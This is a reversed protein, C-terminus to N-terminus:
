FEPEEPTDITDILNVGPLKFGQSQPTKGKCREILGANVAADVYKSVTHWSKGFAEAAIAGSGWYGGARELAAAIDPPNLSAAAPETPSWHEWWGTTHEWRISFDATAVGRRLFHVDLRRRAEQRTLGAKQWDLEKKYHPLLTVRTSAWDALRSAGRWMDEPEAGNTLNGGKGTIHHIILVAVGTRHALDRLKDLAQEAQDNDNEKGGYYVAWPDVVFLKFGHELITEEIRPDLLADFWEDIDSQGTDRDIHTTKRHMIRLRWREFTEAVHEPPQKGGTLHCWRLYANHEDIEGQNILTRAQTRVPLRGLFMGHGDSLLAGLNYSLWSKGIARPAALAAIEGAELFGEVLVEPAPPPDAIQDTVWRLALTRPAPDPAGAPTLDPDDPDYNDVTDPTVWSFADPKRPQYPEPPPGTLPPTDDHHEHELDDPNYQDLPVDVRDPERYVTERTLTM